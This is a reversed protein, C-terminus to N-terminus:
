HSLYLIINIANKAFKDQSYNIDINMIHKNVIQYPFNYPANCKNIM